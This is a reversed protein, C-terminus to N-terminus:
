VKEVEPKGLLGHPLFILVLASVLSVTGLVILDRREFRESTFLKAFPTTIPHEPQWVFLNLLLRGFVVIGVAIALLTPRPQLTLGTVKDVTRVGLLLCFLLFAIWGAIIADALASQLRQGFSKGPEALASM